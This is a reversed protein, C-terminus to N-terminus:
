SLLVKMPNGKKYLDKSPNQQSFTLIRPFNGNKNLSSLYIHTTEQKKIFDILDKIQRIGSDAGAIRASEHSSRQIKPFEESQQIILSDETVLFGGIFLEAESSPNGAIGITREAFYWDYDWKPEKFHEGFFCGNNKNKLLYRQLEM